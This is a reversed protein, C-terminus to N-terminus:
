WLGIAANVLLILFSLGPIGAISAFQRVLPAGHLHVGLLGWGMGFVTQHGFFEILLVWLSPILWLTRWPTTAYRRTLWVCLAWLMGGWVSLSVIILLVLLKQHWVFATFQADTASGWGWWSLGLLPRSIALYYGFGVM